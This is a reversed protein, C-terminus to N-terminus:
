NEYIEWLGSPLSVVLRGNATDIVPCHEHCLPILVERGDADVVLVDTGGTTLVSAVRGVNEGSENHVRLGVLEFHYYHEDSIRQVEDEPIAVERGALQEAASISDVGELKIVPRGKHLRVSEIQISASHIGEIFLVRELELFRTPDTTLPNVVVEGRRGIARAVQGIRVFDAVGSGHLEAKTTM